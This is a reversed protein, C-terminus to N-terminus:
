KQMQRNSHNKNAIISRIMLSAQLKNECSSTYGLKKLYEIQAPTPEYNQWANRKIAYAVSLHKQAFEECILMCDQLTLPIPVVKYIYENEKYVYAAYGDNENQIIIELYDDTQLSWGNEIEVWLFLSNQPIYNNGLIDFEKDTITHLYTHKYSNIPPKEQVDHKHEVIYEASPIVDQLSITQRLNHHKDTFDLVLCDQKNKTLRLGRGVMQIYFSHNKTPRAMVICDVTPEDFGETLLNCSILVQIKGQRFQKLINQRENYKMAGWVAAAKIGNKNFTDALDQSHKVSATFVLAKRQLAHEKFKKVILNNRTHTNIKRTLSSAEFDGMKTRVGKLSTNTIIRRGNVPTLYQTAILESINRNFVIKKFISGLEKKDNRNPTATVGLLLKNDNFFGLEKIIKQYSDAVAHHAEDIILVEFGQQKLQDLRKQQMCTQVSGIVIQKDIENQSSKCIGIKAKPWYAKIKNRTQQILEDRHALILIKKNLLKALAAIIITKGAGTPLVILQKLVKNECHEQVANIAQQQYERLKM